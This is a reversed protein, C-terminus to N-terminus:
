AISSDDSSLVMLVFTNTDDAYSLGLNLKRLTTFTTFAQRARFTGSGPKGGVGDHIFNIKFAQESEKKIIEIELGDGVKFVVNMKANDWVMAGSGPTRIKSREDVARVDVFPQSVACNNYANDWNDDMSPNTVLEIRMVTTTYNLIQLVIDNEADKIRDNKLILDWIDTVQSLVSESVGVAEVLAKEAGMQFEM